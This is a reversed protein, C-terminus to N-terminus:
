GVPSCTRKGLRRDRKSNEANEATLRLIAGPHGYPTKSEVKVKCEERIM